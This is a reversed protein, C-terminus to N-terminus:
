CPQFDNTVPPGGGPPVVCDAESSGRNQEPLPPDKFVPKRKQDPSAQDLDVKDPTILQSTVNYALGGLLGLGMSALFVVLLQRQRNNM